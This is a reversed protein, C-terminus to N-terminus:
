AYIPLTQWQRLQRQYATLAMGSKEQLIKKAIYSLNIMDGIEGLQLKTAVEYLQEIDATLKTLRASVFDDILKEDEPTSCASKIEAALALVQPSTPNQEMLKGLENLKEQIM